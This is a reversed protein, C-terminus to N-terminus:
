GLRRAIATFFLDDDLFAVTKDGSRFMRSAYGSASKTLTSPLEGLEEDLVDHMGEVEDVPFVCDLDDRSVVLCSAGRGGERLPEDFMAHLSVCLRLEGRVNVLGLFADGSRHPVRRIALPISVERLVATSLALWADGVRFVVVSAVVHEPAPKPQALQTTWDRLYDAPV